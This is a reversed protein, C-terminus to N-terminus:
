LFDVTSIWPFSQHQLQLELVKAVQHLSSLRQFLGQAPFSQLCSSFPIVSSSITPHCWQSLPCSNSYVRPAPSPCPPSAQQLGYPQLSDSMVSHSFQVSSFCLLILLLLSDTEWSMTLLLFWYPEWLNFLVLWRLSCWRANKSLVSQSLRPLIQWFGSLFWTSLIASCVCRPFWFQFLCM